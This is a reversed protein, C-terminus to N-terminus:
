GPSLPDLLSVWYLKMFSHTGTQWPTKIHQRTRDFSRPPQTSVLHKRPLQLSWPKGEQFQLEGRTAVAGLKTCFIDRAIHKLHAFYVTEANSTSRNRATQVHWWCTSKWATNIATRHYFACHRIVCLAQYSSSSVSSCLNSCVLFNNLKQLPLLLTLFKPLHWFYWVHNGIYYKKNQEFEPPSPRVLCFIKGQEVRGSYFLVNSANEITRDVTM